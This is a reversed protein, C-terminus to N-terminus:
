YVETSQSNIETFVNGLLDRIQNKFILVLGILVVLIVVIEITGVCETKRCLIGKVKRYLSDLLFVM